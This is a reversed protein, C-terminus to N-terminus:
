GRLMCGVCVQQAIDRRGVFGRSLVRKGQIGPLLGNSGIGGVGVAIKIARPQQDIQVAIFLCGLNHLATNRQNGIVIWQRDTQTGDLHHGPVVRLSALAVPFRNCLM